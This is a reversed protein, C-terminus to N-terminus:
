TWDIYGPSYCKQGHISCEVGPYYGLNKYFLDDKKNDLIYLNYLESLNYIYAMIKDSYDRHLYNDIDKFKDFESAQYTVKYSEDNDYIDLTVEKYRTDIKFWYLTDLWEHDGALLDVLKRVYWNMKKIILNHQRDLLELKRAENFVKLWCERKKSDIKNIEIEPFLFSSLGDLFGQIRGRNGYYSVKPLYDDMGLVEYVHLDGM